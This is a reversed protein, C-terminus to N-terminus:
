KQFDNIRPCPHIINMKNISIALVFRVAANSVDRTLNHLSEMRSDVEENMLGFIELSKESM